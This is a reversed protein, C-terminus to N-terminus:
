NLLYYIECKKMQLNSIVIYIIIYLNYICIHTYINSMCVCVQTCVCVYGPQLYKFATLTTGLLYLITFVVRSFLYSNLFNQQLFKPVFVLLTPSQGSGGSTLHIVVFWIM